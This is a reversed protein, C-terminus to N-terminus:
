LIIELPVLVYDLPLEGFTMGEVPDPHFGVM